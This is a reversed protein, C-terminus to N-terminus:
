IKKLLFCVGWTNESPANGTCFEESHIIEFNTMKALLDIEPISFHRMPHIENFSLNLNKGEDNVLIEYNVNVINENPQIVTEGIRIIKIKNSTIRKIATKPKLNHVAPTYWVDFIFIGGHVLHKNVNHFTSLLKVNDTLYSIVHFLSTVVEFQKNELEFNEIDACIPYFNKIKKEEAQKVMEPSREIGFIEFEQKSFFNAHSGSGCGLELILHPKKNAYREILKVIYTVEKEYNKDRYFLDYYKSYNEFNKM